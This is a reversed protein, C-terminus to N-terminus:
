ALTEARNGRSARNPDLWMWNMVRSAGRSDRKKKRSPNYGSNSGAVKQAHVNQPPIKAVLTACEVM